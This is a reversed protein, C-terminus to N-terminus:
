RQPLKRLSTLAGQEGALPAKGVCDMPEAHGEDRGGDDGHDSYGSLGVWLTPRPILSLPPSGPERNLDQGDFLIM